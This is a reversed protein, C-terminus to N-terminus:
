YKSEKGHVPYSSWKIEQFIHHALQEQGKENPHKDRESIREIDAGFSTFHGAASGHGSLGQREGPLVSRETPWGLFYTPNIKKYYPSKKLHDELHEYMQTRKNGKLTDRQEYMWGTYLNLMQFQRFPVNLNECVNQFSYYYRLSRDIWYEICGRFDMMDNTWWPPSGIQYDRRPATSWAPLVLGIDNMYWEDTLKDLLTSYIREQGSGSKCLNVCDMDLKKALLEPWKPWSCDMSPHQISTWNPDGWSDGSVLLIKKSM